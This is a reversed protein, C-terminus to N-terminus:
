RSVLREGVAANWTVQVRNRGDQKARYLGSDARMLMPEPSLEGTDLAAVGISVTVSLMSQEFPIRLGAIAKRLREAHQAADALQTEPLLIVFEEGGIRAALDNHRLNARLVGAIRRLVEDGAAHGFHDNISKFHDLDLMQLALPHGYRHARQVEADAQEFFNRRNALETLSDSAALKELIRNAERLESNARNLAETREAVRLELQHNLAELSRQAVLFATLDRATGCIHTVEGQENTVPVLLTEFLRESGAFVLQQRFKVTQASDRCEFYGSLLEDAEVGHGLISRLSAGPQFDASIAEEAPNVATLVFDEGACACLWFPDDSKQWLQRFFELEIRPSLPSKM